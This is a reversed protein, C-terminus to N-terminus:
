LAHKEQSDYPYPSYQKSDNWMEDFKDAWEEAIKKSKIIVLVEDNKNEASYTFNYSGSTTLKKDSIMVKLHMNGDHTNIKVPVGSQILKQIHATQKTQDAAQTKDSIVRVNVGRKNAKTIHTVFDGETLLFMAIDLSKESNDIVNIIKQKPSKTSKSFIYDVQASEEDVPKSKGAFKYFGYTISGIIVTTAGAAAILEM